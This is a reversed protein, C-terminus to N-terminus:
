TSQRAIRRTRFRKMRRIRVWIVHKEYTEMLYSKFKEYDVKGFFIKRGKDGRSTVHYFAGEYEICLPRAVVV